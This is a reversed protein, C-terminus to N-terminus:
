KSPAGQAAQEQQVALADMKMAAEKFHEALYRSHQEGFAVPNKSTWMHPNRHYAEAMEENERAESLLRREESRYYSALQQHDDRTKANAVLSQLQQKTMRGDSQASTNQALGSVLATLAAFAAVLIKSNNFSILIM